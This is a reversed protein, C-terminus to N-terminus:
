VSLVQMTTTLVRGAGMGRAAVLRAGTRLMAESSMSSLGSKPSPAGLGYRRPMARTWPVTFSRWCGM